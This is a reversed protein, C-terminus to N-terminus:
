NEICLSMLKEVEVKEISHALKEVELYSANPICGVVSKSEERSVMEDDSGRCIMVQSSIEKLKEMPIASGNGLDLMMTATKNMMGKWDTPHHEAKLKQAFKPVKLEILEPNLLKVEKAASEATWDFKTGLTIIKGIRKSHRLACNLAVYGGMSYGFVDIQQLSNKDLFTLVNEVFVDMSFPRTSLEGGHGEFNFSYVNMTKELEKTLASFQNKSGLAGHLLLISNM